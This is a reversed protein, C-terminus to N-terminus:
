RVFAGGNTLRNHVYEVKFILYTHTTKDNRLEAILSGEVEICDHSFDKAPDHL